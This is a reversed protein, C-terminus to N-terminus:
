IVGTKSYLPFVNDMQQTVAYWTAWLIVGVNKQKGYDLIEQLNIEPSTITLDLEKSWGADIIIYPIKNASAFDIYYKYTQTNMGAKFDVHSINM